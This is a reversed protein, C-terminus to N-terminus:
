TIYVTLTSYLAFSDYIHLKWFNLPNTIIVMRNVQEFLNVISTGDSFLFSRTLHKRTWMQGDVM